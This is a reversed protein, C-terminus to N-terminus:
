SPALDKNGFLVGDVVAQCFEMKNETLTGTKDAFLYEIQGLDDNLYGSKTVALTNSNCDYLEVDSQIFKAQAIRVIDM